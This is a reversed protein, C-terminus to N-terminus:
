QIIIYLVIMAQTEKSLCVKVLSWRIIWPQWLMTIGAVMQLQIAVYVSCKIWVRTTMINGNCGHKPSYRILKKKLSICYMNKLSIRRQLEPSTKYDLHNHICCAYVTCYPVAFFFVLHRSGKGKELPVLILHLLMEKSFYRYRASKFDTAARCADVVKGENDDKREM